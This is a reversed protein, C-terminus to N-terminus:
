YSIQGSPTYTRFGFGGKRATPYLTVGLTLVEDSGSRAREDRHHRLEGHFEAFENIAFSAGLHAERFTSGFAGPIRWQDLGASLTLRDNVAFRAEVGAINSDRVRSYDLGKTSFHEKGLHAEIELKGAQWIAEIGHIDYRYLQNDVQGLFGGITLSESLKFNAHLNLASSTLDYETKIRGLDVQVGFRDAFRLALQGEIQEGGMYFLDSSGFHRLSLSFEEVAVGFSDIQSPEAGVPLPVSSLATLCTIAFRNM